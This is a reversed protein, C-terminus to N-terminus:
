YNEISYRTMGKIISEKLDDNVKLKQPYKCLLTFLNTTDKVIEQGYEQNDKKIDIYDNLLYDIIELWNPDEKNQIYKEIEDKKHNESFRFSLDEIYNYVEDKYSSKTINNSNIKFKETLYQVIKKM